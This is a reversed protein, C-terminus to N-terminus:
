DGALGALGLEAPQIQYRRVKQILTSRAIGLLQAARRKNGRTHRLAVVIHEREVTELPVPPGAAGGPTMASALAALGGGLSNRDLVLADPPDHSVAQAAAASDPTVVVQHGGSRLLDALVSSKADASAVLLIQLGAM